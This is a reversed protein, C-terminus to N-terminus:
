FLRELEICQTLATPKTLFILLDCGEAAGVSKCRDATWTPAAAPQSRKSTACDAEIRARVPFVHKTTLERVM